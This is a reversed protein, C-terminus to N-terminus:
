YILTIRKETYYHNTGDSSNIQMLIDMNTEMKKREKSLFYICVPSLLSKLSCFFKMVLVKSLCLKSYTSIPVKVYM